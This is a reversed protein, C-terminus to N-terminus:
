APRRGHRQSKARLRNKARQLRRWSRSGRVKAAQKRAIEALQKNRWAIGCKNRHQKIARLERATVVLTEEGDTLVLPHIEGPDVAAVGEGPATRAPERGDEVAVHFEYHGSRSYVLKVERIVEATLERLRAPLRVRIPGLPNGRALSLLLTAGARRIASRKWVTPRFRKRKYPYKNEL